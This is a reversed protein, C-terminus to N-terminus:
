CSKAFTRLRKIWDRKASPSTKQHKSQMKSSGCVAVWALQITNLRTMLYRHYCGIAPRGIPIWFPWTLVVSSSAIRKVRHSVLFKKWEDLLHDAQEREPPTTRLSCDVMMSLADSRREPWSDPVESLTELAKNWDYTNYYCFGLYYTGQGRYGLPWEADRSKELFAASDWLRRRNAPHIWHMRPLWVVAVGRVYNWVSERAPTLDGGKEIDRAIRDALDWRGEDLLKVALDLQRDPGYEDSSM